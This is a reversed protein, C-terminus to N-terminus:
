KKRKECFFLTLRLLKQFCPTPQTRTSYSRAIMFLIIIM